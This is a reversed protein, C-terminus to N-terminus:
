FYIEEGQPTFFGFTVTFYDNEAIIYRIEGEDTNEKRVAPKLEMYHPPNYGIDRSTTNPITSKFSPVDSKPDEHDFVPDNPNMVTLGVKMRGSNTFLNEVERISVPTETVMDYIKLPLSMYSVRVKDTVDFGVFSCRKARFIYKTLVSKVNLMRCMKDIDPVEKKHNIIFSAETVIAQLHDFTFSDATQYRKLFDKTFQETVNNDMCYEIVANEEIKNFEINYRIRGPRKAILNTVNYEHNDTLIWINKTDKKDLISLMRNQEHTRFMKGYEDFYVITNQLGALLDILVNEDKPKLGRIYIVPIGYSIGINCLIESLLSKGAGAEGHFFCGLSERNVDYYQFIHTATKVYDGYIKDPLNFKEFLCEYVFFSKEGEKMEKLAYVCPKLEQTWEVNM